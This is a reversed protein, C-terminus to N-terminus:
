SICPSDRRGAACRWSYAACPHCAPGGFHKSSRSNVRSLSLNSARYTRDWHRSSTSFLLMVLELFIDSLTEPPRRIPSVISKQIDRQQLVQARLKSLRRIEADIKPVESELETTIENIAQAEAASPVFGSRQLDLSACRTARELLADAM